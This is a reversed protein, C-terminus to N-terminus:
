KVAREGETIKEARQLAQEIQSDAAQMQRDM